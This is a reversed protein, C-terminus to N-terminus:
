QAKFSSCPLLSKLTKKYSYTYYTSIIPKQILRELFEDTGYYGWTYPMQYFDDPPAILIKYDGAQNNLWDTAENWYDPIKVYSSFPLRTTKTEIPNTLLPYTGIVFTLIFFTAIFRRTLTTHKIESIKFNAIHDVAYGILLALFPMLAMTFKSVPERFMAMGPVYAYLLLNLQNLPEHLGKALFILFLIALMLYTNFCSKSTKFLLASAALLFPVFTLVILFPNSYSEIYPVYEPRWGWVGNLWFLNLFSSRACTWSWATVSVTPNLTTSSLLFYNLIPIAWWINLPISLFGIKILNSLLSRTSSRRTILYYLVIITLVSLIIAINVLNVVALSFAIVLAISFYIIFKNTQGNQMSTNEMIRILLAVLLPLFVYTCLFGLNLRSQLVFFNFMYFISSVIPSLKLKPYVTKSLYYMSLGSGLFFFVQFLIQIFGVSLGLSRLLLWLFEHSMLSGFISPNGLNHSSWEEYNLTKQPSLWVPFHNGHAIIYGPAWWLLPILGILLLLVIKLTRSFETKM